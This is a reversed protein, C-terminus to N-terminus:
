SKLSTETVVSSSVTGCSRLGTFLLEFSSGVHRGGHLPHQRRHAPLHPADGGPDCAGAVALGREVPEGRHGALVPRVTGSATPGLERADRAPRGKTLAPM